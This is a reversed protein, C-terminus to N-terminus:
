GRPKHRETGKTTFRKEVELFFEWVCVGERLFHNKQNCHNCGGRRPGDGEVWIREQENKEIREEGGSMEM